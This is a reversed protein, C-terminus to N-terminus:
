AGEGSLSGLVNATRISGAVSGNIKVDNQLNTQNGWIVDEFEVGNVSGGIGPPQGSFIMNAALIVPFQDPNLQSTNSLREAVLQAKTEHGLGIMILVISFIVRLIILQDVAKM